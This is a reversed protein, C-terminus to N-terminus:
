WVIRGVYINFDNVKFFNTMSDMGLASALTHQQVDWSLLITLAGIFPLGM